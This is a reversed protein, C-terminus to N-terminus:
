LSACSNEKRDKVERLVQNQGKNTLYSTARMSTDIQSALGSEKMGDSGCFALHSDNGMGKFKNKQHSFRIKPLPTETQIAIERRPWENPFVSHVKIMAYSPLIM